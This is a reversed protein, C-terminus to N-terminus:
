NGLLIFMTFVALNPLPVLQVWCAKRSNGRQLAQISYSVALSCIIPFTVVSLVFIWNLLSTESGPADFGFLVIVLALGISPVGLVGWSISALVVFWNAFRNYQEMIVAIQRQMSRPFDTHMWQCSSSIRFRGKCIM